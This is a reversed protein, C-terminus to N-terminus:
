QEIRGERALLVSGANAWWWTAQLVGWRALDNVIYFSTWVRLYLWRHCRKDSGVIGCRKVGRKSNDAGYIIEIIIDIYGWM